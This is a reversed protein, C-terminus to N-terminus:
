PLGGLISSGAGTPFFLWNGEEISDTKRAQRTALDTLTSLLREQIRLVDADELRCANALISAVVRIARNTRVSDFDCMTMLSAVTGLLGLAAM